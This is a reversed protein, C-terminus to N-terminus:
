LTTSPRPNSHLGLGHQTERFREGTGNCCWRLVRTAIDLGLEGFTEYNLNPHRTHETHNRMKALGDTETGAKHVALVSTGITQHITINAATLGEM